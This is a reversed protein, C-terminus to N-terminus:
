RLPELAAGKSPRYLLLQVAELKEVKDKLYNIMLAPRDKNHIDIRELGVVKGNGYIKMKYDKLPEMYFGDSNYINNKDILYDNFTTADRYLAQSYALMSKKTYELEGNVDKNGMLKRMKEYCAITELKLRDSDEKSLDMASQWGELTYPVQLNFTGSYEMYALNACTPKGNKLPLTFLKENVLHMPSDNKWDKMFLKLSFQVNDDIKSALINNPTLGPYIKITLNQTGTYCVLGNIPIQTGPLGGKKYFRWVPMDNVLVQFSCASSQIGIYYTPEQPYHKTNDTLYKKFENTNMTAPNQQGYCGTLFLTFFFLAVTKKDLM